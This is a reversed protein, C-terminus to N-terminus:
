YFITNCSYVFSYLFITIRSVQLYFGLSYFFVYNDNSNEAIASALPRRWIEVGGLCANSSVVLTWWRWIWLLLMALSVKHISLCVWQLCSPWMDIHCTSWSVGGQKTLGLDIADWRCLRPLIVYGGGGESCFGRELAEVEGQCRVGGYSVAFALSVSLFQDRWIRLVVLLGLLWDLPDSACMAMLEIDINGGTHSYLQSSISVVVILNSRSNAIELDTKTYESLRNVV